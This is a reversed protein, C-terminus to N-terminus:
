VKTPQVSNWITRLNEASMVFNVIVDSPYLFVAAWEYDFENSETLKQAVMDIEPESLSLFQNFIEVMITHASDIDAIKYDMISGQFGDSHTTNTRTRNIEDISRTYIAEMKNFFDMITEISADYMDTATETRNTTTDRPTERYDAQEQRVRIVRNYAERITPAKEEHEQEWEKKARKLLKRAKELSKKTPKKLPKLDVGFLELGTKYVDYWYNRLRQGKM